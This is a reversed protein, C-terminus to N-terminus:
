LENTKFDSSLIGMVIEDLYVGDKFISSRLVGEKIFGLNEYLKIAIKNNSQVNLFIRKLGLKNFGFYMTLNTAEKSFGKGREQLDGIFISFEAKRNILDIKKLASIGILKKEKLLEIGFVTTPFNSSTIKDYWASEMEMNVPFPHGAYLEKIDDQNNWELTKQKDTETLAKLRVNNLNNKKQM